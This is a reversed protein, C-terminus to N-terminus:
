IFCNYEESRWVCLKYINDHKPSKTFHTHLKLKPPIRSCKKAIFCALFNFNLVSMGIKLLLCLNDLKDHKLSKTVQPASKLIWLSSDFMEAKSCQLFIFNILYTWLVSMYM